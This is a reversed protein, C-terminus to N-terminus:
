EIIRLEGGETIREEGEETIRQEVTTEVVIPQFTSMELILSLYPYTRSLDDLPAIPWSVTYGPRDLDPAPRRLAEVDDARVPTEQPHRPEYSSPLVPLGTNGDRVLNKLLTREGTRADQGWARTGKAWRRRQSPM